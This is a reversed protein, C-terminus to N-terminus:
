PERASSPWPMRRCRWPTRPSSGRAHEHLQRDPLQIIRTRGYQDVSLAYALAYGQKCPPKHEGVDIVRTERPTLVLKRVLSRCRQDGLLVGPCIYVLEIGVSDDDDINTISFQTAYGARIDFKPFVLQSGPRETAAIGDIALAQGTQLLVCLAAAILRDWRM